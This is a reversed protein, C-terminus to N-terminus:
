VVSKRDREDTRDRESAEMRRRQLKSKPVSWHSGVAGCLEFVANSAPALELWRRRRLLRCRGMKQQAIILHGM